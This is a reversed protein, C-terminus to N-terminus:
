SLHLVFDNLEWGKMIAETGKPRKQRQKIKRTQNQSEREGIIKMIEASIISM